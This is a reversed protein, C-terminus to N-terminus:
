KMGAKVADVAVREGQTLGSLVEVENEGTVESVRVQRMILGGKEDVVYVAVVESRRLVASAPILLKTVKGITFHARVFMGPYIGAENEPLSIKVQTSHTRADAAPQVVVSSANLWRSLSPIEIRVKPHVGIDALKYQPVNVIVRMQSPDFGTMLPKGVSVMEGMEVMRASVVGGYPAVVSTYAQALASQKAGAESAAAQAQAIKYDSQSKDLASQSIFKQEFLQVSREYNAKSNQLAAEAQRAQAASGAMAQDAEREDIRLIVQGKKVRDGIDFNIEKVRGSIQASVTAQRTAEVVGEASYTQAVERFQAPATALPEGAYAFVSVLSLMCVPLIRYDSKMKSLEM